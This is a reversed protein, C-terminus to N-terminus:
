KGVGLLCGMCMTESEDKAWAPYYDGCKTCKRLSQLAEALPGHLQWVDGRGKNHQIPKSLRKPYLFELAYHQSNFVSTALESEKILLPPDRDVWPPGDLCPSVDSLLVTGVFASLALNDLVLGCAKMLQGMSGDKALHLYVITNSAYIALKGRNIKYPM